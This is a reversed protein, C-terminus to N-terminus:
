AHQMLINSHQYLFRSCIKRTVVATLCRCLLCVKVKVLGIIGSRACAARGSHVGGRRCMPLDDPLGNEVCMARRRARDMVRGM